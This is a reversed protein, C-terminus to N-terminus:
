RNKKEILRTLDLHNIIVDPYINADQLFYIKKKLHKDHQKNNVELIVVENVM